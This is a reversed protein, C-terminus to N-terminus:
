KRKGTLSSEGFVLNNGGSGSEKGDLFMQASRLAPVAVDQDGQCFQYVIDPFEKGRKLRPGFLNIPYPSAYLALSNNEDLGIFAKFNDSM